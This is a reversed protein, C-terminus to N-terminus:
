SLSAACHCSNHQTHHPPRDVDVIPVEAAHTRGGGCPRAPFAADPLNGSAGDCVWAAACRGSHPVCTALCLGHLDSTISPCFDICCAIPFIAAPDLPSPCPLVAPSSLPTLMPTESLTPQAQVGRGARECGGGGQHNELPIWHQHRSSRFGELTWKGARTYEAHPEGV